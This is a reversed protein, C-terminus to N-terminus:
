RLGRLLVDDSHVRLHAHENSSAGVVGVLERDSLPLLATALVICAAAGEPASTWAAAVAPVAPCAVTTGTRELVRAVVREREGFVLGVRMWEKQFLARYDIRAVYADATGAVSETGIGSRLILAGPSVELSAGVVDIRVGGAGLVSVSPAQLVGGDPGKQESRGGDAHSVWADVRVSAEMEFARAEPSKGVAVGLMASARRDSELRAELVRPSSPAAVGSPEVQDIGADGQVVIGPFIGPLGPWKEELPVGDDFDDCFSADITACFSPPRTGADGPERTTVDSAAGADRVGGQLADVDYCAAVVRVTAVVLAAVGTAVLPKPRAM